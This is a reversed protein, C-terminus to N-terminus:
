DDIYNAQCIAPDRDKRLAYDARHRYIPGLAGLQSEVLSFQSVAFPPARFDRHEALFGWLGRRRKLRALKVHPAFPRPDAPLGIQQLEDEMASQLRTLAPNDEVGVWLTHCGFHGVGALTLMFGAVEVRLLAANIETAVADDVQGIFRLTLHFNGPQVWRAGPVGLCLNSLSLQLEPPFDIAVFLRPVASEANHAPANPEVVASNSSEHQRRRLL